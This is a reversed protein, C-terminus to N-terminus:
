GLLTLATWPACTASITEGNIEVKDKEQYDRLLEFDARLLAEIRELVKLRALAEASCQGM